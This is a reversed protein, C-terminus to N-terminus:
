IDGQDGPKITDAQRDLLKSLYEETLVCYSGAPVMPKQACGALSGVILLTLMLMSMAGQKVPRIDSGPAPGAATHAQQEFTQM